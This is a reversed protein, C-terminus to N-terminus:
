LKSVDVGYNKSLIAECEKYSEDLTYTRENEIGTIDPYDIQVLKRHKELERVIKRGAQTEVNIHATITM